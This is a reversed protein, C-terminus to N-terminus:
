LSSHLVRIALGSVGATCIGVLVATRWVEFHIPRIGCIGAVVGCVPMPETASISKDASPFEIRCLGYCFLEVVISDCSCLPSM